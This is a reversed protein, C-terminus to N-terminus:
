NSGVRGNNNGAGTAESELNPPSSISPPMTDLAPTNDTGNGSDQQPVGVVSVSFKQINGSSDRARAEIKAPGNRIEVIAYWESWNGGLPIAKKYPSQGIRVEVKTVNGGSDSATGTVNLM